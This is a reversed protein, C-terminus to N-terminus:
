LTKITNFWGTSGKSQGECQDSDKMRITIVAEKMDELKKTGKDVKGNAKIKETLKHVEDTVKVVEESTTINETRNHVEYIIVVKKTTM